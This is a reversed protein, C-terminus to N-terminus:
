RSLFWADSRIIKLSRSLFVISSSREGLQGLLEVHYKNISGNWVAFRSIERMITKKIICMADIWLRLQREMAASTSCRINRLAAELNPTVLFIKENLYVPVKRQGDGWAYSLAQYSPPVLSHHTSITCKLIDAQQGPQIEVLRLDSEPNTLPTYRFKSM